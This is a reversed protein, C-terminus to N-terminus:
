AHLDNKSTPLHRADLQLPAYIGPGTGRLRDKKDEEEPLYWLTYWVFAVCAAIILLILFAPVLICGIAPILNSGGTKGNYTTRCEQCRVHSFLKPGYFSGWFTFKVRKPDSAGCKPCPVWQSSGKAIPEEKTEREVKSSRVQEAKARPPVPAAIEEEVVRPETKFEVSPAPVRVPIGCSPCKVKKGALEEKVKLPKQCGPCRLLIPM